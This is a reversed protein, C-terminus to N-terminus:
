RRGETGRRNRKNGRIRKTEGEERKDREVKAGKSECHETQHQRDMGKTPRHAKKLVEAFNSLKKLIIM